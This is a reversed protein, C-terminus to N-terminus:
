SHSCVKNESCTVEGPSGVKQFWFCPFELTNFYPSITLM